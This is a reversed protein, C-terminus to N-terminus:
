FKIGILYKIRKRYVPGLYKLNIIILFLNFLAYYAYSFIYQM